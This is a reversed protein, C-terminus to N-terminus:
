FRGQVAVGDGTPLFYLLGAGIAAAAGAGLMVAGLMRSSKATSSLDDITAQPHPRAALEEDYKSAKSTFVLGSGILLAAAGASVYAYTRRRGSSPQVTTTAMAQAPLPTRSSAPVAQPVPAPGSAPPKLSEAVATSAPATPAPETLAASPQAATGSPPPALNPAGGTVPLTQAIGKPPGDKARREKAQLEEIERIAKEIAARNSATADKSERLYSKYFQKAKEYQGAQRYSQAINYLLPALPRIRYVLIYEEAAKEYEGLDYHVKARAAHAKAEELSSDQARLPGAALAILAAVITFRHM